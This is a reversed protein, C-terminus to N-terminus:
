PPRRPRRELYRSFWGDTAIDLRAVAGLERVLAADREEPPTLESGLALRARQWDLLAEVVERSLRAREARHEAKLREIAIEDKSFIASDLRWTLRAELWLDRGGDRTFRAPDNLTPTLRLSEDRSTGAGLRVEPLSAAARSRSAMSDLRRLEHASGQVRLAAALAARALAPSVDRGEVEDCHQADACHSTLRTPEATRATAPREEEIGVADAAHTSGQAPPASIGSGALADFGIGLELLGFARQREGGGSESLGGSVGLWLGSAGVFPQPEASAVEDDWAVLPRTVVLGIL